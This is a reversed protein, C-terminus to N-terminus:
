LPLPYSLSHRAHTGHCLVHHVADSPADSGLVVTVDRKIEPLLAAFPAAGHHGRSAAWSRFYHTFHIQLTFFIPVLYTAVIM